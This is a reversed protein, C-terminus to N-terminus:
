RGRGAPTWRPAIPNPVLPTFPNTLWAPVTPRPAAPVSPRATVQHALRTVTPRPPSSAQNQGIQVDGLRAALTLMIVITALAAALAATVARPLHPHIVHMLEGGCIEGVSLAISRRAWISASQEKTV